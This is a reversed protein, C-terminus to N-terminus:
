KGHKAKEVLIAEQSKQQQLEEENAELCATLAARDQLLEKVKNETFFSVNKHM